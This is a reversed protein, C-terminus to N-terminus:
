NVEVKSEVKNELKWKGNEIDLQKKQKKTKKQWKRNNSFQNGAAFLISRGQVDIIHVTSTHCVSVYM